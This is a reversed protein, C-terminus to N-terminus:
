RVFLNILKGAVALGVPKAEAVSADEPPLNVAVGENDEEVEQEEEEEQEQKKKEEEAKKKEENETKKKKDNDKKKNKANDRKREFWENLGERNEVSGSQVEALKKASENIAKMSEQYQNEQQETLKGNTKGIEQLKVIDLAKVQITRIYEDYGTEADFKTPLPPNELELPNIGPETGEQTYETDLQPTQIFTTSLIAGTASTIIQLSQGKAAGYFPVITVKYSSRFSSM